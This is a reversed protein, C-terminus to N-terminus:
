GEANEISEVHIVNAQQDLEGTVKAPKGEYARARESDDLKYITGSPDRLAYLHGDKVVTGTFVAVRQSQDPQQQSPQMQQQHQQDQPIPSTLEFPGGWAMALMLALGCIVVGIALDRKVTQM